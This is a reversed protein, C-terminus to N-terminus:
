GAKEEEKEGNPAEGIIRFTGVKAPPNEFLVEEGEKELALGSVEEPAKYVLIGM